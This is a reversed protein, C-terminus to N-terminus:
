APGCHQESQASFSATGKQTHFIKCFGDASLIGRGQFFGKFPQHDIGEALLVDDYDIVKVQKGTQCTAAIMEVGAIAQEICGQVGNAGNRRFGALFQNKSGVSRRRLRHVLATMIRGDLCKPRLIILEKAPSVKALLPGASEIIELYKPKSALQVGVLEPSRALPKAIM